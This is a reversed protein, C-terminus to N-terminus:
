HNMDIEWLGPTFLTFEAVCDVMVFQNTKRIQYQLKITVPFEEINEFAVLTNLSREATNKQKGSSIEAKEMIVSKDPVGDIYFKIWVQKQVSVGRDVSPSIVHIGKRQKVHFLAKTDNPIVLSDALWLGYNQVLDGSQTIINLLGYGDMKGKKYNGIYNSGDEFSYVGFGHPLGKRFDGVYTDIGKASGEGSALGRKCDGNYQGQLKEVLVKCDFQSFGHISFAIILVVLLALKKM